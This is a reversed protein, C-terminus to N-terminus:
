PGLQSMALTWKWLSGVNEYLKQWPGYLPVRIVCRKGPSFAKTGKQTHIHARRCQIFVTSCEQVTMVLCNQGTTTTLSAWQAGHYGPARGQTWLQGSQLLLQGLHLLLQLILFHSHLGQLLSHEEARGGGKRGGGGREKLLVRCRQEGGM